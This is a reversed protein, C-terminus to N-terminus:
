QYRPNLPATPPTKVEVDAEVDAGVEGLEVGMYRAGAQSVVNATSSVVINPIVTKMEATNWHNAKETVIVNADTEFPTRGMFRVVSYGNVITNRYLYTNYTKGQNANSGVIMIAPGDQSLPVMVKNWCIEHNYPVDIAELGYGVTIQSGSVNEYANNARVTVFAVTAKMWFGNGSSSNSANNQEVLVYRARYVDFYHGNYGKNIIGTHNNEKYLIYDKAITTSSIFVPGTNDSGVLGHKMDKFHNRWFTARSVAGTLWLFHADAVDQRANKWTIGAIFIDLLDGVMVKTTSADFIPEEGPFGILSPTKYEKLLRLNNREAPNGVLNYNGGRFVVIKNLYTGDNPAKYWDAISGLPDNITGTKAGSAGAKIFVFMSPDVTVKWKAEVTTLEQDTIRVIFEETGTATAPTWTISGYNEDGHLSGIQAGIPAKVLEYKFPWAGGQVGVPIEYSMLPHAWRHRAHSQTETDPRPYILHMPMKAKVFNSEPLPFPLAASVFHSLSVLLVIVFVHIITKMIIVM